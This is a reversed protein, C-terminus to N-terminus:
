MCSTIVEPTLLRFLLYSLVPTRFFVAAHRSAIVHCPSMSSLHRRVARIANSNQDACIACRSCPASACPGACTRSRHSHVALIQPSPDTRSGQCTLADGKMRLQLRPILKSPIPCLYGRRSISNQTAGGTERFQAMKANLHIILSSLFGELQFFLSM